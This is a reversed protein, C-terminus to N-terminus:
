CFFVNLTAVSCAVHSGLRSCEHMHCWEVHIGALTLLLMANSHNIEQTIRTGQKFMIKEKERETERNDM